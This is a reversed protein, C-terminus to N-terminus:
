HPNSSIALKKLINECTACYKGGEAGMVCMAAYERSMDTLNEEGDPYLKSFDDLLEAYYCSFYPINEKRDYTDNRVEEVKGLAKEAMLRFHRSYAEDNGLSSYKELYIFIEAIRYYILTLDLSGDDCEISALYFSVAMSGFFICEKITINRNYHLVKFVDDASRGAQYLENPISGKMRTSVRIWFEAKYVDVPVKLRDNYSKIIEVVEDFTYYTIPLLESGYFEKVLEILNYTDIKPFEVIDDSDSDEQYCSRIQAFNVNKEARKRYESYMLWQNLMSEWMTETENIVEDQFPINQLAVLFEQSVAAKSEKAENIMDSIQQWVYITKCSSTIISIILVMAAIKVIIYRTWRYVTKGKPKRKEKGVKVYIRGLKAIIKMFCIIAIITLFVIFVVLIFIDSINMNIQSTVDM